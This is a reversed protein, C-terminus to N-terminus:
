REGFSYGNRARVRFDPNITTVAIRQFGSAGAPHSSRYSLLYYGNNEQQIARLPTVFDKTNYLYDGGTALALRGPTPYRGQGAVDISYVAINNDNLDRVMTEYAARRRNTDQSPFNPGFLILIKRGEIRRLSRALAATAEFLDGKAEESEALEALSIEPPADETRSPWRKKPLKGTTAQHIAYELREADHSFDHAVKLRSDYSLVALHDNPLLSDFIWSATQRGAEPLRARLNIDRDTAIAPRYYLLVFYRPDPAAPPSTESVEAVPGRFVRNSYFSLSQIEVASGNEEVVFDDKDLGVIVSGDGDTVVVDLLVEQIEIEDGFQPIAAEQAALCAPILCGLVAITTSLVSPSMM